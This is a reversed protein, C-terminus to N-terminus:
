DIPMGERKLIERQKKKVKNKNNDFAPRVFPDPFGPSHADGYEQYIGHFAEPHENLDIGVAASYVYGDKTVPSVAIAEVVEGRNRHREAGAVMDARVIECSEEIAMIVADEANKGAQEIRKLYEDLGSLGLSVGGRLANRGYSRAM